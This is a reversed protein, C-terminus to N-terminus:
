ENEARIFDAVPVGEIYLDELVANGNRVRVAAYAERQEGRDRQRYAREAEPAMHEDMYYRDIPWRISAEAGGSHPSAKVRVYDGGDPRTLSTREVYAYGEKDTGLTVYVEQSYELQVGKPLPATAPRLGIAVFRGRFPDYPDVPATRFRYLQGQRLTVERGAIMSAPVAIQVVVLLAFFTMRIWPKM